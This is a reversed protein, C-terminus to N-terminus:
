PFRDPRHRVVRDVLTKVSGVTYGLAFGVRGSMRRELKVALANLHIRNSQDNQMQMQFCEPLGNARLRM